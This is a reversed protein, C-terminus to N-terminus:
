CRVASLADLTQKQDRISKMLVAAPIGAFGEPHDQLFDEGNDVRRQLDQRLVCIADHAQKGERALHRVRSDARYHDIAGGVVIALIVVPVVALYVLGLVRDHRDAWSKFRRLRPMLVVVV